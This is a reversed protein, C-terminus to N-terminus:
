SAVNSKVKSPDISTRRTNRQANSCSGGRCCSGSMVEAGFASSPALTPREYRRKSTTKM